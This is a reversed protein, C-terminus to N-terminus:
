RGMGESVTLVGAGRRAPRPRAAALAVPIVAGVDVPRPTAREELWAELDDLRVRWTGRGAIQVARLGRAQIARRVTRPHVQLRRAVQEITLLDSM